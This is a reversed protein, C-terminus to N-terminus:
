HTSAPMCVSGCPAAPGPRSRVASAPRSARWPLSTLVSAGRIAGRRLVQDAARAGSRRAGPPVVLPHSRPQGATKHRYDLPQTDTRVTKAPSVRGGGRHPDGPRSIEGPLAARVGYLWRRGTSAPSADRGRHDPQHGERPMRRRNWM